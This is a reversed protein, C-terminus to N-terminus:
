EDYNDNDGDNGDNGDDYEGAHVADRESPLVWAAEARLARAFFDAVRRCYGARDTFYVGCHSTADGIWVEKPEGAAEYLRYADEVNIIEDTSSHILLIPRPALRPIDRLPEVDRHHYGARWYIFPGALRAVARALPAPTPWTQRISYELEETHTAFSSDAVVARVEPRRAAGMISVAAGMSFGVLGIRAGPVRRLTYDVAGLFDNLERYGLTVPAGIGAGHGHFDYLLVNNGARWLASSIGLMDARKARYGTSVIIVRTTEPRPLWWGRVVHDGTEPPFSVDEYPVGMEFPTFTYEDRATAKGPRTLATAVYYAAGVAGAVAGGALM